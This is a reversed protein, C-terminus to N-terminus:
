YIDVAVDGSPPPSGLELSREVITKFALDAYPSLPDAELFSEYAEITDLSTAADWASRWPDEQAQLHTAVSGAVGALLLARLQAYIRHLHSM